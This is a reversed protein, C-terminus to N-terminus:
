IILDSRRRLVFPFRILRINSDILKSRLLFWALQVKDMFAYHRQLDDKSDRRM